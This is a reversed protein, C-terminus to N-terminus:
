NAYIAAIVTGITLSPGSTQNVLGSKTTDFTEVETARLATIVPKASMKADARYALSGNM